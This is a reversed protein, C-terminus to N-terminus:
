LKCCVLENSKILLDTFETLFRSMMGELIYDCLVDGKMKLTTGIKFSLHRASKISVEDNRLLYVFM